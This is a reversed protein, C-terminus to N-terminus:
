LETAIEGDDDFPILDIPLFNQQSYKPLYYLGVEGDPENVVEFIYVTYKGPNLIDSFYVTIVTNYTEPSTNSVYGVPPQTGLSLLDIHSLITAIQKRVDDQKYDEKDLQGLYVLVNPLAHEEAFSTLYNDWDFVKRKEPDEELYTPKGQQLANDEPTPMDFKHIPGKVYVTKFDFAIEYETDKFGPVQSKFYVRYAKFGQYMGLYNHSLYSSYETPLSLFNAIKDWDNLVSLITWIGASRELAKWQDDNPDFDFKEAM